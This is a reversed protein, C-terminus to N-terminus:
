ADARELLAIALPLAALEEAWLASKFRQNVAQRTIGLRDAIQQQTPPAVDDGRPKVSSDIVEWGQDTRRDIVAGLLQLLAECSQAAVDDDAEVALAVTTSKTKAREVANRAHVFAPGSAARSSTAESSVDTGAGVGITWGGIRLVARILTLTSASSTLTAQVEDGVTREFPFKVGDLGQTLAHLAALFEPVRDGQRTSAQQDITLVFM